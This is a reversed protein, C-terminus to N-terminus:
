SFQPYTVKPSLRQAREMPDYCLGSGMALNINRFCSVTISGDDGQELVM